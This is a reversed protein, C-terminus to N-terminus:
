RRVARATVDIDDICDPCQPATATAAVYPEAETHAPPDPLKVSQARMGDVVWTPAHLAAPDCHETVRVGIAVLQASLPGLVPALLHLPEDTATMLADSLAAGIAAVQGDIDDCAPIKKPVVTEGIVKEAIKEASEPTLPPEESVPEESVV